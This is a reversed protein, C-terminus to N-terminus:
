MQRMWQMGADATDVADAVDAADVADVKVAMDAADVAGVADATDAADVTDVADVAGAANAVDVGVKRPPPADIRSHSKRLDIEQWATEWRQLAVLREPLSLGPSLPDYM